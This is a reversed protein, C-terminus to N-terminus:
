IMILSLNNKYMLFHCRGPTNTGRRASARTTLNISKRIFGIKWESAFAMSVSDFYLVVKRNETETRKIERVGAFSELDADFGTPIGFEQVTM